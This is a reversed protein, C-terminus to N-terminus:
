AKSLSTDVTEDDPSAELEGMLVDVKQQAKALSERLYRLLAIGREYQKLSEELELSNSELNSVIGSLENMAQRFTLEEVPTEEVM